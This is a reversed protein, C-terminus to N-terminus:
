EVHKLAEDMPVKRIKRYEFLAVVAYSLLGCIFAKVYVDKGVCFTIWGTMESRMMTYLMQKLMITELPLTILLFLIVVITTAMIYLKGIEGTTYGLIKAMSISQANKEIILKTMLYMLILYIVVAFVNVLDMMSGM